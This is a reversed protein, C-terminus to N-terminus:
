NNQEDRDVANSRKKNLQTTETKSRLTVKNVLLLMYYCSSAASQRIQSSTIITNYKYTVNERLSYYPQGFKSCKQFTMTEAAKGM